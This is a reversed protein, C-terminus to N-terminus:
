GAFFKFVSGSYMILTITSIPVKNLQQIPGRFYLLQHLFLFLLLFIIKNLRFYYQTLILTKKRPDSDFWNNKNLKSFYNKSNFIFVQVMITLTSINKNIHYNNTRPLKWFFFLSNRTYYYGPLQIMFNSWALGHIPNLTFNESREFEVWSTLLLIPIWLLLSFLDDEHFEVKLNLFLICIIKIIGYLCTFLCVFLFNVIPFSFPFLRFITWGSTNGIFNEM